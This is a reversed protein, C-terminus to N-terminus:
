VEEISIPCTSPQADGLLRVLLTELQRRDDPALRELRRGFIDDVIRKGEAVAHSGTDTLSLRYRRLDDPEVERRVFGRAEVQKLIYSVTAPPLQMHHALEAPHPCMELSILLLFAKPHLGLRGLAPTADEVVVQLVRWLYGM